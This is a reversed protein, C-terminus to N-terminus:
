VFNYLDYILVSFIPSSPTKNTNLHLYPFVKNIKSSQIVCLKHFYHSGLMKLNKETEAMRGDDTWGGWEGDCTCVNLCFGNTLKM